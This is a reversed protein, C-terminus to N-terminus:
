KSKPYGKYLHLINLDEEMDLGHSGCPGDIEHCGHDMAFAVLTNFEKYNSKVIENITAFLHSDVKLEGLAIQSEPGNKHMLGDYFGNYIVVFDYEKSLIVEMAKASVQAPTDVNFYAMDRELFIKGLSSNAYSIIVPKKGAKILVDFISEIKIVPKVYAQIGHVEPQAGTYMTGFCVPTVSPMVSALPVEVQSVELGEHFLNKYKKYIWEAIADPNFMIIKDVKEGNFANDIFNALDINKENATSPKEVGMAYCLAGCITDLSNINKM